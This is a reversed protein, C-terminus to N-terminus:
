TSQFKEKLQQVMEGLLIKSVKTTLVELKKQSYKKSQLNKKKTMNVHHIPHLQIIVHCPLNTDEGVDWILSTLFNM